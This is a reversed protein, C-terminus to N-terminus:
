AGDARDARYLRLNPRIAPLPQGRDLHIGAEGLIGTVAAWILQTVYGVVHDRSM